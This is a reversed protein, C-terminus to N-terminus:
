RPARRSCVFASCPILCTVVAMVLPLDVVASQALEKIPKQLETERLQYELLYFHWQARNTVVRVDLIELTPCDSM